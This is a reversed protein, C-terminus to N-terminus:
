IDYVSANFSKSLYYKKVFARWEVEFKDHTIGLIEEFCDYRKVLRLLTTFDWKQIIFKILTYSFGYGGLAYFTDSNYEALLALSPIGKNYYVELIQNLSKTDFQHAEYCAIGEHMWLPLDVTSIQFVFFHTMEHVAATLMSQKNHVPGPNNYSVMYIGKHLDTIDKDNAIAVFWGGSNPRGVRKQFTDINPYIEINIKDSFDIKFDHVLRLYNNEMVQLIEDSANQDNQLCHLTFHDTEKYFPLTEYASLSGCFASLFLFFKFM